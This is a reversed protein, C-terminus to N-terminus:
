ASQSAELRRDGVMYKMSREIWPSKSKRDYAARLSPEAHEEARREMLELLLAVRQVESKAVSELRLAVSIANAEIPNVKAPPDATFGGRIMADNLDAQFLDPAASFRGSSEVEDNQQAILDARSEQGRADIRLV